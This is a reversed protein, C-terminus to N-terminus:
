ITLLLFDITQVLPVSLNGTKQKREVEFLQKYLTQLQESGFLVAQQELKNKQWPQMRKVEEISSEGKYNLALLLRVQRVLMFFVMEVETTEITQHFLTVLKEGNNPRLSDLLVFLTQPLKFPRITASSFAMLTGRDLEKNEWLVITHERGYGELATILEKYDSRKKQKTIFQEIFVYKEETFLGGGAFIQALDTFTIKDGEWSVAGPFQEQQQLFFKRSSAVDDGHVLMLM